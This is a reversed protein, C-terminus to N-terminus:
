CRPYFVRNQRPRGGSKNTAIWAWTREPQQLRWVINVMGVSNISQHVMMNAKFATHSFLLQAEWPQSLPCIADTCGRPADIPRHVQNGDIERYNRMACKDKRCSAPCLLSMTSTICDLNRKCYRCAVPVRPSRPELLTCRGDVSDRFRQRKTPGVECNM